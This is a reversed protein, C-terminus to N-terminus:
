FVLALVQLNKALQMSPFEHLHLTAKLASAELM